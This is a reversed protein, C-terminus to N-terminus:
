RSAPLVAETKPLSGIIAYSVKYSTPLETWVQVGNPQDSLNESLEICQLVERKHERNFLFNNVWVSKPTSRWWKMM